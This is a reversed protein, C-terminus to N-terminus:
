LWKRQRAKKNASKPNLAWLSNEGYIFQTLGKAQYRQIEAKALRRKRQEDTEKPKIYEHERHPTETGMMAMAAFMSFIGLKSKKM